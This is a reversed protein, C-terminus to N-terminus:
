DYEDDNNTEFKDLPGGREEANEEDETNETNSCEERKAKTARDSCKQQLSRLISPWFESFKEKSGM